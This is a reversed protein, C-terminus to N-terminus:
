HSEVGLAEVAAGRDPASVKIEKGNVILV